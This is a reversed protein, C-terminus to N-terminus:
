REFAGIDTDGDDARDKGGQHRVYEREVPRADAALTGAGGVCPSSAVLSFDQGSLDVFGVDTGTLNGNDIVAGNLTDHTPRWAQQLWNDSLTANGDGGTIALRDAGATAVIINNRADMSEGASSLRVLTTNGSRTSVITNAYLQLTGKRYRTEDGSDGGYHIIQSNGAGDSEVLVNGYVHTTNYSADSIFSQYDSDVLDLQRNGDEIWNYRIVTGASRDKLNNGDGGPRLAGYRNYEFTIGFSETYSNHEFASGVIGNGHLYNGSIVVSSTAAGSFLGNGSDTLVCGRVTLNEGVELHISAANSSYVGPAGAEDTFSYSPHASRVELFEIYVHSPVRMDDPLNSGGVKIVSREENWYNLELRATAGDGTIVPLRGQDPVGIVVLPESATAETNIVWKSAYPQARWHIRVLTSPGLSEWPVENPDAYDQGPGVDYVTDFDAPDWGNTGPTADASGGADAAGPQGDATPDNGADSSGSSGGCGIAPVLLAICAYARHKGM